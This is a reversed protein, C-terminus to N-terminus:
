IRFRCCGQRRRSLCFVPERSIRPLVLCVFQHSKRLWVRWSSFGGQEQSPALCFDVLITKVQKYSSTLVIKTLICARKSVHEKSHVSTRRRNNQCKGEIRSVREKSKVLIALGWRECPSGENDFRRASAMEIALGRCSTSDLPVSRDIWVHAEFWGRFRHM